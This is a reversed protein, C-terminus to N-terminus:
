RCKKNLFCLNIKPFKIKHKLFKLIKYVFNFVIRSVTLRYILWGAAIFNLIFFRIYGLNITLIFLFVLVACIIFYVIDLIFLGLKKINFILRFIKFIDYIIGPIIGFICSYICIQM